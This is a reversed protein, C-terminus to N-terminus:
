PHSCSRLISPLARVFERQALEDFSAVASPRCRVDLSGRMPAVTNCVEARRYGGNSCASKAQHSQLTSLAADAIARWTDATDADGQAHALEAQELLWDLADPGRLRIHEAAAQRTEM